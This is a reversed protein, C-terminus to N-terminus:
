IDKQRQNMNLDHLVYKFSTECNESNKEISVESDNQNHEEENNARVGLELAEM